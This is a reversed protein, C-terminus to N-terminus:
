AVCSVNCLMVTKISRALFERVLSPKDFAHTGFANEGLGCNVFNSVSKILIRANPPFHQGCTTGGGGSELRSFRWQTAIIFSTESSLILHM